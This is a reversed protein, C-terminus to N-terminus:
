LFDIFFLLWYLFAEGKHGGADGNPAPANDAGARAHKLKMIRMRLFEIKARSDDLM